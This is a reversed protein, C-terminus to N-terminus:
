KPSLIVSHKVQVMGQSGGFPYGRFVFNSVPEKDLQLKGLVIVDAKKYIEEPTLQEQTSSQGEVTVFLLLICAIVLIKYM